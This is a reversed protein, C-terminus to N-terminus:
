PALECSGANCRASVPPDPPGCLRNACSACASSACQQTHWTLWTKSTAYPGSPCCACCDDKTTTTCDADSRCTTDGVTKARAAIAQARPDSRHNKAWTALETV